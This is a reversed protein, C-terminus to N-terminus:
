KVRRVETQVAKDGVQHVHTQALELLQHHVPFGPPSCDVPDSLTPCLQAVSSCQSTVHPMVTIKAKLNQLVHSSSYHMRTYLLQLNRICAHVTIKSHEIKDSSNTPM